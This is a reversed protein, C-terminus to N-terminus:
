SRQSRRAVIVMNVTRLYHGRSIGAALAQVREVIAIVPAIVNRVIRVFVSGGHPPSPLVDVTGAGLSAFLELASLKNLHLEHTLDGFSLVTGLSADINPTRLILVGDETLHDLCARLTAIAEDRTLHEIVDLLVIAHWHDPGVFASTADGVQVDVVGLARATEVQQESIDIGRVNRYGLNQLALLFGGYGCGLDLIRASRDTPLHPVIDRRVLSEEDRARKRLDELSASRQQVSTYQGYFHRRYDNM